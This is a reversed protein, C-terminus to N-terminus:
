AAREALRSKDPSSGIAIEKESVRCGPCYEHQATDTGVAFGCDDFGESRTQDDM